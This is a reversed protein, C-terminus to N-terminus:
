IHFCQRPFISGLNWCSDNHIIFIIAESSFALTVETSCWYNWLLVGAVAGPVAISICKDLCKILWGANLQPFCSSTILFLLFELNIIRSHLLLLCTYICIVLITWILSRVRSFNKVILFFTQARTRWAFTFFSMPIFAPNKHAAWDCQGQM